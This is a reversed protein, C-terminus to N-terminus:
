GERRKGGGRWVSRVEGKRERKEQGRRGRVVL